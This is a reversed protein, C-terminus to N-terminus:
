IMLHNIEISSFIVKNSIKLDYDPKGYFIEDDHKFQSMNDQEKFRLSWNKASEIYISDINYSDKIKINVDTSISFTKYEDIGPYKLLVSLNEPCTESNFNMRQKLWDIVYLITKTFVNTNSTDSNTPMIYCHLQFTYYQRNSIIPTVPYDVKTNELSNVAKTYKLYNIRIIGSYNGSWM